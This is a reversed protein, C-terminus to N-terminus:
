QVFCVFYLFVKTGAATVKSEDMSESICKCVESEELLTCTMVNRDVQKAKEVFCLLECKM